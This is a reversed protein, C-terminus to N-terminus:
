RGRIARRLIHAWRRLQLEALSRQGPPEGFMGELFPRSPFVSRLGNERLRSVARSALASLGRAATGLSERESPDFMRTATCGALGGATAWERAGSLDEVSVDIAGARAPHLTRRAAESDAGLSVLVGVDALHRLAVLPEGHHLVLAHVCATGLLDDLSPLLITRGLPRRSARAWVAATEEATLAPFRHHVEVEVGHEAHFRHAHHAGHQEILAEPAIEQGFHDRVPAAPGLTQALADAARERDEPRVLVDFDGTPRASFYEPAVIGLAVGKMPMWPIGAADLVAGTRLAVALLHANQAATDQARRRLQERVDPAIRAAVGSREAEAFVLAGLGFADLRALLWPWDLDDLGERVAWSRELVGAVAAVAVACEREHARAVKM